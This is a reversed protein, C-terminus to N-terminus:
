LISAYNWYLSSYIGTALIWFVESQLTFNNVFM